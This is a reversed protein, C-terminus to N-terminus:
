LSDRAKICLVDCRENFEHGAHAKIWRWTIPHQACLEDLEQIQRALSQPRLETNKWVTMSDVLIRSDSYLTAKTNPPLSKLAEIAAQFEMPNSAAKKKAGSNEKTVKGHHTIVYAWAGRGDKASGDTYIEVAKSRQFFFKFLTTIM